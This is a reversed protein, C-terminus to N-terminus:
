KADWLELMWDEGWRKCAFAREWWDLRIILASALDIGTPNNLTEWFRMISSWTIYRDARRFFWATALPCDHFAGESEYLYAVQLGYIAGM